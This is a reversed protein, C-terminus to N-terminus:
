EDDMDFKRLDTYIDQMIFKEQTQRLYRNWIDISWTMSM